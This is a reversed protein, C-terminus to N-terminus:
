RQTSPPGFRKQLDEAMQNISKAIDELADGERLTIHQSFNGQGIAALMKIMRKMPGIVRHSQRIGLYLVLPIALLLQVILTTAIAILAVITYSQEGLDPRYMNAQILASAVLTGSIAVAFVILFIHTAFKLQYAHDVLFQKRKYPIKEDAM